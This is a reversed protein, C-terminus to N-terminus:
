EASVEEYLYPSRAYSFASADTIVVNDYGGSCHVVTLAGNANSVVIGVHNDAGIASPGALFVLDGPQANQMDVAKSNAWQATTGDGIYGRVSQSGAANIFAWTVFGSCDLGYAESSGGELTDDGVVTFTRGWAENWGIGYSKGGYFYNVKGKLSLAALLVSRRAGEVGEIMSEIEAFEEDSLRSLISEDCLQNVLSLSEDSAVAAISDAIFRRYDARRQLEVEENVAAKPAQIDVVEVGRTECLSTMVAGMGGSLAHALRRVLSERRQEILEADKPSYLEIEFPVAAEGEEADADYEGDAWVADEEAAADSSEFGESDSAEASEEIPQTGEPSEPQVADAAEQAAQRELELQEDARAQAKRLEAQVAAVNMADELGVRKVYLTTEEEDNARHLVRIETMAWYLDTLRGLAESTTLDIEYPFNDLQDNMAAYLLLIDATNDEDYVVPVEDSLGYKERVDAIAVNLQSSLSRMQEALSLNGALVQDGAYVWAPVGPEDSEAAEIEVPEDQNSAPADPVQIVEPAQSPEQDAPASPISSEPSSPSPPDPPEVEGANSNEAEEADEPTTSDDSSLLMLSTPDLKTEAQAAGIDATQTPSNQPVALAVGSTSLAAATAVCVASRVLKMSAVRRATM